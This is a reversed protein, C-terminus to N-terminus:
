RMRSGLFRRNRAEEFSFCRAQFVFATASYEAEHLVSTYMEGCESFYEEPNKGDKGQRRAPQQRTLPVFCM